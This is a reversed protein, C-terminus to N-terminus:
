VFAIEAGYQYGYISMPSPLTVFTVCSSLYASSACPMSSEDDLQNNLQAAFIPFSDVVPFYFFLEVM